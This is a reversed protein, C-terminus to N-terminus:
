ISGQFITVNFYLVDVCHTGRSKRHLFHCCITVCHCGFLYKFRNYLFFNYIFSYQAKNFFRFFSVCHTSGGIRPILNSFHFRTPVSSLINLVVKPPFRIFYLLTKLFTTFLGTRKYLYYTYIFFVAHHISSYNGSIIRSSM